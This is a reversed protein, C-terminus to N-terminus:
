NNFKFVYIGNIMEERGNRIVIHILASILQAYSAGHGGYEYSITGQVSQENWPLHSSALQSPYSGDLTGYISPFTRGIDLTATSSSCPGAFLTIVMHSEFLHDIVNLRRQIEFTITFVHRKLLRTCNIYKLSIRDDFQSIKANVNQTFCPVTIKEDNSKTLYLLACFNIFSTTVHLSLM